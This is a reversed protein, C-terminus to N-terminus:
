NDRFRTTLAPLPDFGVELATYWASRKGWDVETSTPSIWDRLVADGRAGRVAEDYDHPDAGRGRRLM